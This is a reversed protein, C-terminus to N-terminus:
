WFIDVQFFYSILRVNKGFKQRKWKQRSLLPVQFGLPETRIEVYSTWNKKSKASMKINLFILFREFDQKEARYYKWKQHINRFFVQEVRAPSHSILSLLLFFNSSLLAYGVKRCNFPLPSFQWVKLFVSDM